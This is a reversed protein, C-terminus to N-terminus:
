ADRTGGPDPKMVPSVGNKRYLGPLGNVNVRTPRTLTAQPVNGTGSGAYSAIDCMGGSEGSSIGAEPRSIGPIVERLTGAEQRITWANGRKPRGEARQRFQRIVINNIM